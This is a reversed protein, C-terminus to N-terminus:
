IHPIKCTIKLNSTGYPLRISSIFKSKYFVAQQINRIFHIIYKIASWQAGETCHDSWLYGYTYTSIPHPPCPDSNLDEHPFKM